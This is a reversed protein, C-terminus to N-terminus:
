DFEIETCVADVSKRSVQTQARRRQNAADSVIEGVGGHARSLRCFQGYRSRRRYVRANVTDGARSGASANGSLGGEAQRHELRLMERANGDIRRIKCPKSIHSRAQLYAGVSRYMEREVVVRLIYGS